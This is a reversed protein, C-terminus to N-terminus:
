GEVLAALQEIVGGWGEHFGMQEHTARDADNRHMVHADYRTGEDDDRFTMTATLPTPYSTEAPRWGGLLVNSFVIRVMPEVELFCADLHPTFQHGDESMRTVFGGGPRLDMEVVKCQYPAPLWWREFRRPDAWADWVSQRPARIVRSITLDLMADITM